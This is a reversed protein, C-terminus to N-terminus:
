GVPVGEVRALLERVARLGEARETAIRGDDGVLVASPSGYVRYLDSVEADVQLLVQAIGHEEATARNLDLDGSSILAVPLLHEAQAAAVAPLLPTCHGCSPDTFVLLAGRQEALLDDLAVLDGDLDGLM